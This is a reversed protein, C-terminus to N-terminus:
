GAAIGDYHSEQPALHGGYDLDHGRFTDFATTVKEKPASRRTQGSDVSLHTGSEAAGDGDRLPTGIGCRSMRGCRAALPWELRASGMPM